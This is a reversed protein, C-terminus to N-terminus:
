SARRSSPRRLRRGERHKRQDRRSGFEGHERGVLRLRSGAGLAAALGSVAAGRKLLRQRRGRAHSPSPGSLAQRHTRAM